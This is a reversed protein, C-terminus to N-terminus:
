KVYFYSYRIVYFTLYIRRELSHILYESLKAISATTALVELSSDRVEWNADHLRKLIVPGLNQMESGEMTDMLLALNPALFHDISLQLLKLTHVALQLLLCFFLM